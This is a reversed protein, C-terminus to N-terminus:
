WDVPIQSYYQLGDFWFITFVPVLMVLTNLKLRLSSDM